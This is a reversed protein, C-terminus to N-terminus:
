LSVATGTAASRYLAEIVRAQALADERGLLPERVGRIADALNELELRYSNALEVDVWESADDRRVELGPKRAHWPDRLVISGRSGIPELRSEVPLDFGCHFQAIVRNPFRLVGAFRVDVGSPGTVQVGFVADPEGALLRAGSVCYCGVDMLAGGDLDARLRVNQEDTLTYSFAARIQRIEGIAGSGVLEQLKATQPNHRWMLAEALLLGASDATDFAREVEAERRDLPKECLVHKGAELARVSWEVHLSNPLSIYIAELEPDALLAEYSGYARGIGHARAYADARDRDRSAVAATEVRDSARAGELVKENIDATSLVGFRVPELSTM